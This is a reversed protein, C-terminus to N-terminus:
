YIFMNYHKGWDKQSASKWYTKSNEILLEEFDNWRGKKQKFLLTRSKNDGQMVYYSGSFGGDEDIEAFDYVVVYRAEEVAIPIRHTYKYFCEEFNKKFKELILNAYTENSNYKGSYYQPFDKLSVGMIKTENLNAVIAVKSETLLDIAMDKTWNQASIPLSILSLMLNFLIKKM